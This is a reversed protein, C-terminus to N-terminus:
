DINNIQELSEYAIGSAPEYGFALTLISVSILSALGRISFYYREVNM